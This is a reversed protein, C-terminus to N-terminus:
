QSGRGEIKLTNDGGAKRGFSVLTLEKISEFLPSHFSLRILWNKEGFSMAHIRPMGSLSCLGLSQIIHAYVGFPFNVIFLAYLTAIDM